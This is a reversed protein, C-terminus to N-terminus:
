LKEFTLTIIKIVYSCKHVNENSIINISIYNSEFDNM